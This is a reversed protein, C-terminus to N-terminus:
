EYYGVDGFAGAEEVLKANYEQQNVYDEIRQVLDNLAADAAGLSPDNVRLALEVSLGDRTQFSIQVAAVSVM